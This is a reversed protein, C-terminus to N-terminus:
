NKLIALLCIEASALHLEHKQAFLKVGFVAALHAVVAPL